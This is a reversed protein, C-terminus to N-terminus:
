KISYERIVTVGTLAPTGGAIQAEQDNELEHIVSFKANGPALRSM